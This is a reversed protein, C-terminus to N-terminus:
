ERFGLAFKMAESLRKVILMRILRVRLVKTM